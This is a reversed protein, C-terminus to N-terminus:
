PLNQHFKGSKGPNIALPTIIWHMKHQCKAMWSCLWDTSHLETDQDSEEKANVTCSPAAWLASLRGRMCICENISLIGIEMLPIYVKGPIDNQGSRAFNMLHNANTDTTLLNTYEPTQIEVKASRLLSLRNTVYFHRIFKLYKKDQLGVELTSVRGMCAEEARLLAKISKGLPGPDNFANTMCAANVQLYDVMLSTVGVGANKREKLMMATPTSIPLGMAKKAIRALISDLIQIDYATYIGLSLSYAIM